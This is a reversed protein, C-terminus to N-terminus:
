IILVINTLKNLNNIVKLNKNSLEPNRDLIKEIVKTVNNSKKLSHYKNKHWTDHLNQKNNYYLIWEHKLLEEATPRM